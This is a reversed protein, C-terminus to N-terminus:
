FTEMFTMTGNNGAIVFIAATTDMTIAGGSLVAFGNTSTLGTTGVLYGINTSPSLTVKRRGARAAVVQIATGQSVAVQGTAISPSGREITTQVSDTAPVVSLSATGAKAGLSAPIQPSDITLSGGADSVQQTAPFNSVSVSGSVTQTAPFNSVAVTWTGSQTAAVTGSVPQTAPFNSVSVSGSIPQTAPFNSVAVSGSIPQPTGGAIGQVTVVNANPSGASGTPISSSSSGTSSGRRHPGIGPAPM